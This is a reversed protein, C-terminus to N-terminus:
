VCVSPSLSPPVMNLIADRWPIPLLVAGTGQGLATSNTPQRVKVPVNAFQTQASAMGLTALLVAGGMFMAFDTSHKALSTPRKEINGGFHRSSM